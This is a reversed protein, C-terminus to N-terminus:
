RGLKLRANNEISQRPEPKINNTQTRNAVAILLNGLARGLRVPVANGIQLYKSQKTGAFKYDKPFDQLAAYELISLPREVEPHCLGTAMHQPQTPLTPAPKDWSLRRWFGVRGGGSAYAGKLLTELGEPFEKPNDRIYTWYCGPPIRKWVKKREESYTYTEEPTPEPLGEIADRLDRWPSIPPYPAFQHHTPPLLDQLTM